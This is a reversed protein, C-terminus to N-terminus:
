DTLYILEYLRFWLDSAKEQIACFVICACIQVIDRIILLFAWIIRDVICIKFPPSKSMYMAAIFLALYVFHDMKLVSFIKVFTFFHSELTSYEQHRISIAIPTVHCRM